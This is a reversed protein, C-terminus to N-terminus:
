IDFWPPKLPMVGAAISGAHKCGHDQIAATTKGMTGGLIKLKVTIEIEPVSDGPGKRSVKITIAIM